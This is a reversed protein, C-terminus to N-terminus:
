LAQPTSLHVFDVVYQGLKPLPDLDRRTRLKGYPEVRSKDGPHVCCDDTRICHVYVNGHRGFGELRQDTATIPVRRKLRPVPVVVYQAATYANTQTHLKPRVSIQVWILLEHRRAHDVDSGEVVVTLHM